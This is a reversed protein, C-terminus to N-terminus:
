SIRNKTMENVLCISFQNENVYDIKMVRDIKFFFIIERQKLEQAPIIMESKM